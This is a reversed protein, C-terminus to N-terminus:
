KKTFFGTNYARTSKHNKILVMFNYLTVYIGVVNYYNIVYYYYYHHHHYYYYYVSLKFICISVVKKKGTTKSSSTGQVSFKSELEEVVSVYPEGSASKMEVDESGALRDAVGRIAAVWDERYLLM